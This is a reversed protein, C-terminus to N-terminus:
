PAAHLSIKLPEIEEQDLPSQDLRGTLGLGQDEGPLHDHVAVPAVLGSVADSPVSINVELADLGPRGPAGVLQDPGEVRHWLQGLADSAGVAEVDPRRGASERVHHQM